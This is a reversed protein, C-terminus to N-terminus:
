ASFGALLLVVDGATKGILAIVVPLTSRWLRFPRAPEATQRVEIYLFVCTAITM